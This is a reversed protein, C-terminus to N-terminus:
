GVHYHYMRVGKDKFLVKPTYTLKYYVDLLYIVTLCFVQKICSSLFILRQIGTCLDNM